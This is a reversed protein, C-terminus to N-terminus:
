QSNGGQGFGGQSNNNQGQSNSNQGQSNGGQGLGGSVHDLESDTLQRLQQLQQRALKEM